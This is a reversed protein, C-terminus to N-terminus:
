PATACGRGRFVVLGDVQVGVVDPCGNCDFDTIGIGFGDIDQSIGPFPAPQGEFTGEATQLLSWMEATTPSVVVLDSRGDLNLDAIQLGGSAFVQPDDITLLPQPATLKGLDDQLLIWVRMPGDSHEHTVAAVDERGDNNVDGM